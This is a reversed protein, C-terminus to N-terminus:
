VKEKVRSVKKGVVLLYYEYSDIKTINYYLLELRVKSVLYLLL